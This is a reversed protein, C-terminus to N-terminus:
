ELRQWMAAGMVRGTGMKRGMGRVKAGLVSQGDTWGEEQEEQQLPATFPNGPRRAVEMREKEQGGM